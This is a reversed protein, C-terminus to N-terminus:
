KIEAAHRIAEIQEFVLKDAVQYGFEDVFTSFSSGRNNEQLWAEYKAAIELAFLRQRQITKRNAEDRRMQLILKKESETIEFIM